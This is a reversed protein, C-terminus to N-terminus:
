HPRRESEPIEIVTLPCTNFRIKKQKLDNTGRNGNWTVFVRAGDPSVAVGYAGMPIYGHLDYLYPHLFCIVKRSGAGTVRVKAGIGMRNTRSADEVRVRLWNGSESTNELLRSHNNPFWNVLFLDLKGDANFDGSPGAPFYVMPENM